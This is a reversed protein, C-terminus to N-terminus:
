KNKVAFSEYWLDFVRLPTENSKSIIDSIYELSISKLVYPYQAM